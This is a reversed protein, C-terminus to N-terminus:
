PNLTVAVDHDVRYASAAADTAIRFTVTTTASLSATASVSFPVAPGFPQAAGVSQILAGGTIVIQTSPHDTDVSLSAAGALGGDSHHALTVSGTTYTPTLDTRVRVLWNPATGLATRTITSPAPSSGNTMALLSEINAASIVPASTGAGRTLTIRVRWFRNGDAGYPIPSATTSYTTAATGDPGVFPAAAAAAASSGWAFQLSATSGAPISGVLGVLGFVGATGTDFVASTWTGSLASALHEVSGGITAPETRARQRAAKAGFVNFEDNTATAEYYTFFSSGDASWVRSGQPISGGTGAGFYAHGPGSPPGSCVSTLTSLSPRDLSITAGPTPCAVTVYNATQPIFYENDILDAPLWATSESGDGDAQQILAQESTAGTSAGAEGNGNSGLNPSTVLSGDTGTMTSVTGNSFRVTSSGAAVTGWKARTSAIGYLPETTAPPVPYVDTGVSTRHMVLIPSTATISISETSSTNLDGSGTITTSTNASVVGNFTRNPPTQPGHYVRVLSNGFPAYVVIQNSARSSPIVFSTGALAIPVISDAGSGGSALGSGALPGTASIVTNPTLGTQTVVVGRNRISPAGGTSVQNGDTYSVMSLTDSPWTDLVTYYLPRPTSYSFVGAKDSVSTATPNNWYLCVTSTGTPLSAFKVWVTSATSPTPGELWMTQLSTGMVARLDSADPAMRGAAIETQTDLELAVQYETLTGNSGASTVGYCRRSAWAIDWWGAPANSTLTLSDGAVATNLHTGQNWEIATDVSTQVGSGYEYILLGPDANVRGEMANDITAAGAPSATALIAAFLGAILRRISPSSTPRM